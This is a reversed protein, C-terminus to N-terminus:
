TINININEKLCYCVHKSSAHFVAVVFPVFTCEEEEEEEEMRRKVEKERIINM